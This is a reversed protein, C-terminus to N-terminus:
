FGSPITKVTSNGAHFFTSCSVKKVLETKNVAQYTNWLWHISHNHHVALRDNISVPEGHQIQCLFENVIDEHYSWKTSLKFPWQIDVDCPQAVGTCSGPIYDIIITSHHTKM